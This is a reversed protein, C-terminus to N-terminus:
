NDFFDIQRLKKKGRVILEGKYQENRNISMDNSEHLRYEYLVADIFKLREFGCIELLPFMFSMDCPMKLFKGDDDKLHYHYPDQHLFEKFLIYKFSRVHGIQWTQERLSNFEDQFYNRGFKNFGTTYGMIGYSMLTLPNAYVNNLIQFVYGHPLQDDPDILCIIDGEEFSNEMLAELVNEVAYKRKNNIKTLYKSNNPILNSTGDNSADDIFYVTFNKYKQNEISTIFDDIYNVINRYPAIVCIHNESLPPSFHKQPNVTIPHLVFTNFLMEMTGNLIDEDALVSLLFRYFPKTIIFAKVKQIKSLAAIRSDIPIEEKHDSDVCYIYLKEQVLEYILEELNQIDEIRVDTIDCICYIVDEETDLAWEIVSKLNLLINKNRFQSVFVNAKNNGALVIDTNLIVTPIM